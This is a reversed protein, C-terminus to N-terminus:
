MKSILDQMGYYKIAKQKLPNTSWEEWENTYPNYGCKLPKSYHNKPEEVYARCDTCIHRFVCDKCVEIQDKTINWFKKFDKHSLAEELTIDKINGFSQTMAPCNKINGEKDISIKKHLCSNHNLSELVKEKNVNFLNTTIKGCNKFSNIPYELFNITFTKKSIQLDTKISNHIVINTIRFNIKDIEEIFNMLEKSYHLILEISKLNNDKTLNLLERLAKIDLVNYSILQVNTCYLKELNNIIKNIKPITHESIEIICNSVIDPSEYFTNILPFLDFEEHTTIFGYENDILFEVYEDITSESEVGYKSKIEEISIKNKFYGIIENMSDPIALFNKRQIDIILARNIGNVVICNSFLKFYNKHM